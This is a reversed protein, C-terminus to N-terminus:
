AQCHLSYTDGFVVLAHFESKSTGFNPRKPWHGDSLERRTTQHRILSTYSHILSIGATGVEQRTSGCGLAPVPKSSVKLNWDIEM